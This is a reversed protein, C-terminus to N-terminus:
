LLLTYMDVFAICPGIVSAVYVPSHLQHMPKDCFCRVRSQSYTVIFLGQVDGHTLSVSIGVSAM